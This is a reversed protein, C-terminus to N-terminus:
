ATRATYHGYTIYGGSLNSLRDFGSQKLIRYAAYARIGVRCTIVIHRNRPLEGMRERLEDVPINVARPISGAQFEEKTRVDLILPDELAEIQDYTLMDVLGSLVNTGVFGAMNVPDKASGFPPAYSLELHELDYVTGGARIAAALVDIRKDSGEGGICQAGLIRGGPVAFLVKLTMQAAGPYYGAHNLPHLHIAQYRINSTRITKENLGTLAAQLDFVKVIATGL